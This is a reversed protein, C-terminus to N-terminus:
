AVESDDSLLAQPTMNVAYAIVKLMEVTVSRKGKEIRSIVSQDCGVQQALQAQTLGAAKRAARIDMAVAEPMATM